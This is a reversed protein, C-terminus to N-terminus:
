DGSPCQVMASRLAVIRDHPMAALPVLFTMLDPVLSFFGVPDFPPDIVHDAGAIVSAGVQVLAGSTFDDFKRQAPIRFLAPIPGHTGSIIPRVLLIELPRDSGVAQKAVISIGLRVPRSGRIVLWSKGLRKRLADVALPAVTRAPLM